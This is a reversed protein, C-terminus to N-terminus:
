ISVGCCMVRVEKLCCEGHFLVNAIGGTAMVMTFWAWTFHRVRKRLRKLFSTHTDTPEPDRRGMSWPDLGGEVDRQPSGPPTVSDDRHKAPPPHKSDSKAIKRNERRDHDYKRNKNNSDSNYDNDTTTNGSSSPQQGSRRGLGM